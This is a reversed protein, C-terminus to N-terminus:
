RAAKWSMGGQFVPKSLADLYGALSRVTARPPEPM